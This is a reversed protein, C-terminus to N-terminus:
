MSFEMSQPLVDVVVCAILKEFHKDSEKERQTKREMETTNAITNYTRKGFMHVAHLCAIIMFAGGNIQTLLILHSEKKYQWNRFVYVTM